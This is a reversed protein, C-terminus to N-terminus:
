ADHTDGAIRDLVMLTAERRSLPDPEDLWRHGNLWTAPHAIYRAEKGRVSAAYAEAGSLIQDPTAMTVAKAYARQAAGKGKRMPYDNWFRDFDIEFLVRERTPVTGKGEKGNGKGERGKGEHRTPCADDVRPDRTLQIDIDIGEDPNPLKSDTERNNIVQHQKWSPIYGYKSADVEYCRIFGRKALADLVRSFDVEDHPLCDLKLERPSWRFRGERDCATWLGAFAVRLPLGTEIEAEYLGFHRFFDPKITRIRAM